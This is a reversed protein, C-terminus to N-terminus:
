AVKVKVVNKKAEEAKPLRIELVGDKFSANVKETKVDMPLEINRSFSGFTRECRYYDEEKVEEEKKKEGKITLMNGELSIDIEDKTLGPIEAKVIVDDKEEYVDLAPMELSTPRLSWLDPRWLRTVPRSWFDGLWDEFMKEIDSFRRPEIESRRGAVPKIDKVEKAAMVKEKSETIESM